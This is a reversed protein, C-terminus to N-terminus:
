FKVQSVEVRTNARLNEVDIPADDGSILLQLEPESFMALWRVDILDRMGRLFAAAQVKTRINLHYNATLYVYKIRNQNDVDINAGGPILEVLRNLAVEAEPTKDCFTEPIRGIPLLM